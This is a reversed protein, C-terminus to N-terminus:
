RTETSVYRRFIRFVIYAYRICTCLSKSRTQTAEPKPHKDLPHKGPQLHLSTPHKKKRKISLAHGASSGHSRESPHGTSPLHDGQPLQIIQALNRKIARGIAVAAPPWVSAVLDKFGGPRKVDILVYLPGPRTSRSKAGRLFQVSLRRM